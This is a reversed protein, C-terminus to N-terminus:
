ETTGNESVTVPVVEAMTIETDGTPPEGLVRAAMIQLQGAAAAVTIGRGGERPLAM